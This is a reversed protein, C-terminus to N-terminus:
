INVISITNKRTYKFIEDSFPAKEDIKVMFEWM